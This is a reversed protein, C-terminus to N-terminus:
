TQSSWDQLYDPHDAYVAALARVTTCPYAVPPAGEGVEYKWWEACTECYDGSSAEDRGHEAIIARKAKCEALVRAPNHRAVHPMTSQHWVTAGVPVSVQDNLAAGATVEDEAIRALLFDTINM